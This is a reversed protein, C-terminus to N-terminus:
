RDISALIDSSRFRRHLSVKALWDEQTPTGTVGQKMLSWNKDLQMEAQAFYRGDTWLAAEHPAIVACGTPTHLICCIM